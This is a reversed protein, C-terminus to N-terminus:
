PWSFFVKGAEPTSQRDQLAPILPQNISAEQELEKLGDRIPKDDYEFLQIIYTIGGWGPKFAEIAAYHRRDKESLSQYFRCMQQEIESSYLEM